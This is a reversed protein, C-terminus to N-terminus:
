PEFADFKEAGAVDDYWNAREVWFIHRMAPWTGAAVDLTGAPVVILKGARSLYPLGSGCEVCFANSIARGPVDFRKVRDEGQRWRFAEPDVFLNSAHASGTARQCQKCHCINFQRFRDTVEFTVAGCLCTGVLSTM